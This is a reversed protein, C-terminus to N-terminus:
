CLADAVLADLLAPYTVGAASFMRPVQSQATFGPATNVENLVPGAATLFFDFRAVGACGLAEYMTLAAQEISQKESDTLPAPILFKADGGYKADYDFLGDTLIELAPSVTTGGLVAVDIERGTIVDEVLVRDDCAFAAALAAPLDPPAAVLSVGRSSGSAVPKVVVPGAWRYGAATAATLRVGPATAIGMAAAVLKTAWKDMALAGARVGSGAYPVGAFELLAAVSGDEGRPGHLMPLAVDCGALVDMAAALPIPRDAADRWRGDEGITLRVVDYRAPDLAAAVSAASALSVEHENNRGGGIVAVRVPRVM